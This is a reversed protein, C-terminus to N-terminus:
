KRRRRARENEGKELNREHDQPSSFSQIFSLSGNRVKKRTINDVDNNFNSLMFCTSAAEGHESYQFEKEQRM